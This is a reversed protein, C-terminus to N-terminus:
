PWVSRLAPRCRNLWSKDSHWRTQMVVRWEKEPKLTVITEIMSIPAPDLSSEARGVKGVVDRVEPVTQIAIDQQKIVEEAITLSASPLVSPMYLFSGEDLPPMFERGIGPFTQELRQWGNTKTIDIGVIRCTASIPTGVVDFGLWVAFGLAMVCVPITLFTAKHTLVWRLSPRYVKFILQSVRNEELPILRERGMRYVLAGVLLGVGVATPWGSWTTGLDLGWVIAVRLAIMAAIGAISGFLLSRRRSWTVPKLLYYSLVPVVTIALIVSAAIAFTKTYALPRFMKGEPGTLAFVPIFSVVTNVVATVIAGGVETAADYVTALYSHTPLAPPILRFASADPEQVPPVESGPALAGRSISDANNRAESLRRYINETMIIGMDSVDGIAIALGALSMINSDVGLWYMAGFSMALALPLTPLVALSSRLHLLFLVVIFGVVISEEILNDRLTAMTEYIIDTRDYYPVIRVPVAKGSPQVIRLGPEIEAIKQKVRNIVALPNEGYRMLVVAGTAERGANDLTGRRFEPGLQVTAVNKVYIPTGAEQRIVVNEIDQVSRVFGKGRIFFEFRNSEVVKAGVDINSRRVAEYVDPLTVRHARLKEPLVDIQYERVFGGLTSVETVGEVSQLQYRIYWDQLSRLQALDAGDAQLTYYFVQGLATADSGLTPLVGSPLRGVAVNMRELGRSRAWYYDVEDKFIIFVMSFGFGSFSRITKVGPTGSLSVSLPYTVQDEVDQPSRGPWDALVIVQKEGIDPIADIPINALAYYGVSVLLLTVLIVIFRNNLCWRIILNVM